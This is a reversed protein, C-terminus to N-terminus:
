CIMLIPLMEFIYQQARYTVVVVVEESTYTSFQSYTEGEIEELAASSLACRLLVERSVQQSVWEGKIGEGIRM